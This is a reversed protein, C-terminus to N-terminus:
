AEHPAESKIILTFINNHHIYYAVIQKLEYNSKQGTITISGVVEGIIPMYDKMILLNYYESVLRIAVVDSFQTLTGNAQVVNASFTNAQM